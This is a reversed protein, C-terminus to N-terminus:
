ILPEPESFRLRALGIIKFFLPQQVNKSFQIRFYDSLLTELLLKVEGNRHM